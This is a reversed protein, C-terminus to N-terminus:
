AFGRCISLWCALVNISVTSKSGKKARKECHKTRGDNFNSPMKGSASTPARNEKSSSHDGNMALYIPASSHIWFACTARIGEVRAAQEDAERM